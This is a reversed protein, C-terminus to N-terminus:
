SEQRSAPRRHLTRGHNMQRGWSPSPSDLRGQIDPVNQQDLLIPVSDKTKIEENKGLRPFRDEFFTAQASVILNNNSNMFRYAKSGSEYGVFTMLESKPSLKDSCKEIPIFVWAECGFVKFYKVDPIDGYILELPTKWNGHKIPTHNYVHAAMEISFQWWSRPCGAELQMAESKDNLTQIMREARGNQQHIHPASTQHTIGYKSLLDYFAKNVFEGGRNSCIYKIRINEAFVKAYWRQFVTITESKHKLFGLWIYSSFDDVVVLIYKYKNYSLSPYEKLDM